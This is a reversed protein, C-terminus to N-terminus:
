CMSNEHRERTCFPRQVWLCECVCMCVCVLLLSCYRFPFFFSIAPSFNRKTLLSRFINERKRGTQNGSHSINQSPRNILAIRSFPSIADDTQTEGIIIGLENIKALPKTWASIIAQDIFIRTSSNEPRISSDQRPKKKTSPFLWARFHWAPTKSQVGDAENRTTWMIRFMQLM